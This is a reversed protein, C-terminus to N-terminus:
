SWPLISSSSLCHRASTPAAAWGSISWTIALAAEALAFLQHEPAPPTTVSIMMMSLLPRLTPM